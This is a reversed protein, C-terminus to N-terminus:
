LLILPTSHTLKTFYNPNPNPNNKHYFQMRNTPISTPKVRYAVVHLLDLKALLPVANLPSLVGQRNDDDGTVLVSSVQPHIRESGERNDCDLV